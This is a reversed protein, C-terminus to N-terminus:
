LTVGDFKEVAPWSVATSVRAATDGGTGVMEPICTRTTHAAAAPRVAAAVSAAVTLAETKQYAAAAVGASSESLADNVSPTRSPFPLPRRPSWDDIVCRKFASAGRLREGGRRSGASNDVYDHRIVPAHVPM